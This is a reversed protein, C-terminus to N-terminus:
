EETVVCIDYVPYGSRIYGYPCYDALVPYWESEDPSLGFYVNRVLQSGGGCTVLSETTRSTYCAVVQDGYLTELSIYIEAGSNFARKFQIEGYLRSADFAIYGLDVDAAMVQLSTAAFALACIIKKSRM